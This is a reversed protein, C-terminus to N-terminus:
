PSPARDALVGILDLAAILGVPKKHELVIVRHIRNDKMLRAVRGVPTDRRVTIPSTTMADSVCLGSLQRGLAQLAIEDCGPESAGGDMRGELQRYYDLVLDSLLFGLGVIRVIDARSVLGVLEQQEVVPAGSIRRRCLEWDLEVLPLGPSVTYLERQMVDDATMQDLRLM